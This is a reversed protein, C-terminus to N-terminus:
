VPGKTWLGNEKNPDPQRSGTVGSIITLTITKTTTTPVMPEEGPFALRHFVSANPSVIKHGYFRRAWSTSNSFLLSLSLSPYLDSPPWLKTQRLINHKPPQEKNLMHQPQGEGSVLFSSPHFPFFFFSLPNLRPLSLSPLPHYILHSFSSPSLPPTPKWRSQSARPSLSLPNWKVLPDPRETLPPRKNKLVDCGSVSTLSRRRTPETLQWERHGHKWSIITKPPTWSHNGM